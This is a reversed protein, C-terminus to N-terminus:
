KYYKSIKETFYENLQENTFGAKLGAQYCFDIFEFLIPKEDNTITPTFIMEADFYKLPIKINM